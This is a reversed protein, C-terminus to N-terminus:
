TPYWNITWDKGAEKLHFPEGPSIVAMKSAQSKFTKLAALSLYQVEIRGEWQKNNHAFDTHMTQLAEFEKEDLDSSTAALVDIDSSEKEFDGTVLSGYLYFGALKEGLIKQVESFLRELLENIDAYPTPDAQMMM